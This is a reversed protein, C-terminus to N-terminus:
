VFMEVVVVFVVLGDVGGGWLVLLLVVCLVVEVSVCVVCM